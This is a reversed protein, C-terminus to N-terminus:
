QTTKPNDYSPTPSSSVSELESLRDAGARRTGCVGAAGWDVACVRVLQSDFHRMGLVRRAAERVAAFADPLLDDLTEGAALRARLAPTLAALQDDSLARM